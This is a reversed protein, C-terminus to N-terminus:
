AVRGKSCDLKHNIRFCETCTASAYTRHDARRSIKVYGGAGCRMTHLPTKCGCPQLTVALARFAPIASSALAGLVQFGEDIAVFVPPAATLEDMVRAAEAAAAARDKVHGVAQAKAGKMTTDERYLFLGDPGWGRLQWFGKRPQDAVYKWGTSETRHTLGITGWEDKTRWTLKAEEPGGQKPATINSTENKANTM